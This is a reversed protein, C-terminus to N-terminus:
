WSDADVILNFEDSVVCCYIKWKGRDEPSIPQVVTPEGPGSIIIETISADVCGAAYGFHIIDQRQLTAKHGPSNMWGEFVIDLEEEFTKQPFANSPNLLLLVEGYIQLKKDVFRTEVTGDPGEHKFLGNTTLYLLQDRALQNAINGVSLSMQGSRFEDLKTSFLTSISYKRDEKNYNIIGSDHDMYGNYYYDGEYLYNEAQFLEQVLPNLVNTMVTKLSNVQVLGDLLSNKLLLDERYVSSCFSVHLTGANCFATVDVFSDRSGVSLFFERSAFNKPKEWTFTVNSTVQVEYTPHNYPFSYLQEWSSQPGSVSKLGYEGSNQPYTVGDSGFFANTIETRYDNVFDKKTNGMDLDSVLVNASAMPSFQNVYWEIEDEVPETMIFNYTSIQHFYSVFINKYDICNKFICRQRTPYTNSTEVIRELGYIPTLNWTYELKNQYTIGDYSGERIQDHSIYSSYNLENPALSFNGGYSEPGDYGIVIDPSDSSSTIRSSTTNIFPHIFTIPACKPDGCYIEGDNEICTIYDSLCYFAGEGVNPTFYAYSITTLTPTPDFHENSLFLPYYTSIVYSYSGTDSVTSWIWNAIVHDSYTIVLKNVTEFSGVIGVFSHNGMSIKVFDGVKVGLSLFNKTTDYIYSPAYYTVSNKVYPNYGNYTSYGTIKLKRFKVDILLETNDQAPIDEFLRQEKIDWLLDIQKEEDDNPDVSNYGKNLYFYAHFIDTKYTFDFLGTNGQAIFVDGQKFSLASLDNSVDMQHKFKEKTVSIKLNVDRVNTKLFIGSTGLDYGIISSGSMITYTDNGASVINWFKTYKSLSFASSPTFTFEAELEVFDSLRLLEDDKFCIIWIYQDTLSALTKMKCQIVQGTGPKQIQAYYVGDVLKVSREPYTMTDEVPVGDNNVPWMYISIIQKTM